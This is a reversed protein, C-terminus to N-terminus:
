NKGSSPLSSPPDSSSRDIGHSEEVSSDSNEGSLEPHAELLRSLTEEWSHALTDDDDKSQCYQLIARCLSVQLQHLHLYM